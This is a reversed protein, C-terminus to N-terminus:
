HARVTFSSAIQDISTQNHKYCDTSCRVVLLYLLSTAPDVLGIQIVRMVQNGQVVNLNGALSLNYVMRVGHYGGSVVIEKYSLIDAADNQLLQDVPYVANRISAVSFQDRTAKSLKEVRALVVPYQPIGGLV